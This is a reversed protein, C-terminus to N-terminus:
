GTAGMLALFALVALLIDGTRIAGLMSKLM